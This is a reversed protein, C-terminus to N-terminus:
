RLCWFGQLSWIGFQHSLEQPLLIKFLSLQRTWLALHLSFASMTSQLGALTESACSQVDESWYLSPRM